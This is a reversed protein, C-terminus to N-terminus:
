YAGSTLQHEALEQEVLRVLSTRGLPKRACQSAGFKFARRIEQLAEYRSLSTFVVIIPKDPYRQRIEKLRAQHDPSVATSAIIALDYAGRELLAFSEEILSATKVSYGQGELINSAFDLWVSEGDVILITRKTNM